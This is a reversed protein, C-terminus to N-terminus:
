AVSAGFRRIMGSRYIDLLAPLQGVVLVDVGAILWPFCFSFGWLSRQGLEAGCRQTSARHQCRAGGIIMGLRLKTLLDEVEGPLRRGVSVIIGTM